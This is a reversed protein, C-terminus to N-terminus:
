NKHKSHEGDKDGGKEKLTPNYPINPGWIKYMINYTDRDITISKLNKIRKRRMIDGM